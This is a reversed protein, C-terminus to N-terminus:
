VFANPEGARPIDCVDAVGQQGMAGGDASRGRLLCLVQEFRISRHNNGADRAMDVVRGERGSAFVGQMQGLAEGEPCNLPERVSVTVGRPDM